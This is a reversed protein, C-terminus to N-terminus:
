SNLKVVSLNLITAVALWAVYPILILGARWDVKLFLGFTVLVLADLALILYLGAIKSLAFFVPSWAFNLILQLAYASLALTRYMSPKMQWIMWSAIGMAAYLIPWIVSFAWPPPNWSPKKFDAYSSKSRAAMIAGITTGVVLPIAIAIALEIWKNM